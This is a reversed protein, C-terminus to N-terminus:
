FDVRMGAVIGWGGSTENADVAAEDDYDVDFISGQMAVGDSIAWSGSLMFMDGEDQGDTNIAGETEYASYGFSVRYAGQTYRLGAEWSHGGDENTATGRESQETLRRTYAGGLTFNDYTISYTGQHGSSGVASGTRQGDSESLYGYAVNVDFGGLDMGMAGSKFTAGFSYAGQTDVVANPMADGFNGVEPIWSIALQLGTSKQVDTPTFYTIKHEDDDRGINNSFRVNGLGPIWNPADGDGIGVDPMGYKMANAASDDEGLALLGLSDSSIQIWSEDINGAGAREGEMDFRAAIKIGNDLTTTGSFYIESDSQQDVNVFDRLGDDDEVVAFGIDQVMYGGLSLKIRDAAGAPAALLGVGVIASTSLLFKRM